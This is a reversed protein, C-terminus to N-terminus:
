KRDGRDGQGRKSENEAAQNQDQRLSRGVDDVENFQGKEDRRVYRKDGPKPEILERKKAVPAEKKWPVPKPEATRSGVDIPETAPDQDTRTRHIFRDGSLQNLPKASGRINALADADALAERAGALTARAAALLTEPSGPRTARRVDVCAREIHAEAITIASTRVLEPREDRIALIRDQLGRLEAELKDVTMWWAGM